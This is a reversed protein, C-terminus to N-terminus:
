DAPSLEPLPKPQPTGDQAAEERADGLAEEVKPQEKPTDIAEEVQSKTAEIEVEAVGEETIGLEKAAAESLDIDRSGVFPGRDNVEVEVSQGTDPNTVTVESGLPLEPHAATLKDPDFPEGSATKEGDFEDGYYSAQGEERFVVPDDEAQAPGKATASLGAFVLMWALVRCDARMETPEETDRM